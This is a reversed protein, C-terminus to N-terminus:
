PGGTLYGLDCALTTADLVRITPRDHNASDGRRRSATPPALPSVMIPM